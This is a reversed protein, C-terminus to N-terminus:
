DDDDPVDEIFQPLVVEVQQKETWLMMRKGLLEAAKTRAMTDSRKERREVTAGFDGDPVVLLAEDTIKGRMVATLYQLVEDQDAISEKRLEELREEIYTKINPKKLNEAGIVAATKRSYGANLASETANGLRIYEDAFRRQKETLKM